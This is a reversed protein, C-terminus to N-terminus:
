QSDGQPADAVGPLVYVIFTFSVFLVVQAYPIIDVMFVYKDSLIKPQFLDM